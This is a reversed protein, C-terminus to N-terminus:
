KQEGETEEIPSLDMVIYKESGAEYSLNLLLVVSKDKSTYITTESLDGLQTYEKLMSELENDSIADKPTMLLTEILGEDSFQYSIRQNEIEGEYCLFDDKETLLTYKKMSNKVDTVSAGWQTTIGSGFNPEDNNTCGFLVCLLCVNLVKFPNLIVRRNNM